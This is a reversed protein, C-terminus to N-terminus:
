EKFIKLSLGPLYRYDKANATFLTLGHTDATAAILADALELGHSLTFEESWYMARASITEDIPIVRIKLESLLSKWKQLREKNKLGRIVEIYTVASIAKEPAEELAIQAKQHGRLSWIIIDSDFLM